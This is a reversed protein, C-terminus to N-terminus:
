NITGDKLIIYSSNEITNTLSLNLNKLNMINFSKHNIPTIANSKIIERKNM